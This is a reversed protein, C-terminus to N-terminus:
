FNIRFGGAIWLGDLNVEAPDNVVLGTVMDTVTSSANAESLVYKVDVGIIWRGTLWELGGGVHAGFASDVDQSVEFGLAALSNVTATDVSFSAIYFGAGGGVYPLANGIRWPVYRVSGRVPMLSLSGAALVDGQSEPRIYGAEIEVDFSPTFRFAAVGSVGVTTDLSSESFTVFIGRAGVSWGLRDDVDDQALAPTALFCLLFVLFPVRRSVASSLRITKMLIELRASTEPRIPCEEVIRASHLAILTAHEIPITHPAM